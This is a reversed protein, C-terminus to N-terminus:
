EERNTEPITTLPLAPSIRLSVSITGNDNEVVVYKSVDGLLDRVRNEVFGSEEVGLNECGFSLSCFWPRPCLLLEVVQLTINLALSHLFYKRFTPIM